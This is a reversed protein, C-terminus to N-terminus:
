AVFDYLIRMIKIYYPLILTKKYNQLRQYLNIMTTM